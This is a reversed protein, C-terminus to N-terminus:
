ASSSPAADHLEALKEGFPDLIITDVPQDSEGHRYVSREVVNKLERINGPWAYQMLIQQAKESFGTFYPRKLERIMGIAFHEALLLIDPIRERLP